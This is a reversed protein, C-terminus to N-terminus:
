FLSHADMVHRFWARKQAETYEPLPTDETYVKVAETIKAGTFHITRSKSCKGRREVLGYNELQTIARGIQGTTKHGLAKAIEAPKFPEDTKAYHAEIVDFIAQEKPTLMRRAGGM